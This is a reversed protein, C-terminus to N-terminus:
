LLNPTSTNGNEDCNIKYKKCYYYKVFNINLMATIIITMAFCITAATNQVEVNFNTKIFKHISVGVIGAIPILSSFFADIALALPTQGIKKIKEFTGRHVGIIILTIYSVTFILYFLLVWLCFEFEMISKEVTLKFSAFFFWLLSTLFLGFVGNVLFRLEFTIKTYPSQIKRYFMWYLFSWVAVSILPFLSMWNVGSKGLSIMGMVFMIIPLILCKWYFTKLSELSIYKETNIYIFNQVKKRM